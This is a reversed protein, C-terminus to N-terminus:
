ITKTLYNKQNIIILGTAKVTTGAAGAEEVEGREVRAARAAAREDRTARIRTAKDELQTRARNYSEMYYQGFNPHNAYKSGPPPRLISQDDVTGMIRYQGIARNNYEQKIMDKQQPNIANSNDIVNNFSTPSDARDLIPMDDQLANNRNMRANGPMFMAFDRLTMSGNDPNPAAVTPPPAPATVTPPSLIGMQQPQGELIIPVTTNYSDM